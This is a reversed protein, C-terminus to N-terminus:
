GSKGAMIRTTDGDFVLYMRTSRDAIQELRQSALIYGLHRGSREGRKGM